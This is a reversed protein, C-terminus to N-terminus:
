NTMEDGMLATGVVADAEPTVTVVIVEAEPVAVAAAVRVTEVPALLPVTEEPEAVLVWEGVLDEVEVEVEEDLVADTLTGAVLAAFPSFAPPAIRARAAPIAM